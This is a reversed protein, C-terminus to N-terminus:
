ALALRVRKPGSYVSSDLVTRCWLESTPRVTRNPVDVDHSGAKTDYPAGSTVSLVPSDSQFSMLAVRGLPM